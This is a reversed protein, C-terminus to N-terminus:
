GAVQPRLLAIAALSLFVTVGLPITRWRKDFGIKSRLTQESYQSSLADLQSLCEKYGALFAFNRHEKTWTDTCLSDIRIATLDQLGQASDFFLRRCQVWGRWHNAHYLDSGDSYTLAPCLTGIIFHPSDRGNDDYEPPLEPASYKLPSNTWLTTGNGSVRVLAFTSGFVAMWALLQSTTFEPLLM